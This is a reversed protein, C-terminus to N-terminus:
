ILEMQPDPNAAIWHARRKNADNLALVAESHELQAAAVRDDARLVRRECFGVLENLQVLKPHPEAEDIM